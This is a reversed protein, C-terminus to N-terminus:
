LGCATILNMWTWRGTRSDPGFREYQLDPEPFCRSCSACRMRHRWFLRNKGFAPVAAFLNVRSAGQLAMVPYVDIVPRQGCAVNFGGWLTALPGDGDVSAM